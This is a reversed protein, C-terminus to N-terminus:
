DPPFMRFMFRGGKDKNDMRTIKCKIPWMGFSLIRIVQAQLGQAGTSYRAFLGTELDAAGFIMYCPAGEGFDSSTVYLDNIAIAGTSAQPVNPIAEQLKRVSQQAFVDEITAATLTQVMLMQSLYEPNPENYPEHTILSTAWSKLDFLGQLEDPLPAPNQLIDAVSIGRKVLQGSPENGNAAM